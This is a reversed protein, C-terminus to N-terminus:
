ERRAKYILEHVPSELEDEAARAAWNYLIWLQGTPLKAAVGVADMLGRMQSETM